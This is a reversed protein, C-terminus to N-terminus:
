ARAFGAVADLHRAESSWDPARRRRGPAIVTFGRREHGEVVGTRRWFFDAGTGEWLGGHVLLM